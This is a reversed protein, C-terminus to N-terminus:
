LVTHLFHMYRSEATPFLMAEASMALLLSGLSEGPLVLQQQSYLYWWLKWIHNCVPPAHVHVCMMGLWQIPIGSIAQTQAPTQGSNASASLKWKFSALRVSFGATSASCGIEHLHWQVVRQIWELLSPESQFSVSTGPSDKSTISICINM